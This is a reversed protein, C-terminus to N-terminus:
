ILGSTFCFVVAALGILVIANVIDPLVDGLKEVPTKIYTATTFTMDIGEPHRRKAERISRYKGDCWVKTVRKM